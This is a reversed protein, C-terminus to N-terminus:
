YKRISIYKYEPDSYIAGGSVAQQADESLTQLLQTQLLQNIIVKSKIRDV